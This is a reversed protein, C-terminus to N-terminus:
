QSPSVVPTRGLQYACETAPMTQSAFTSKAVQNEGSGSATNPM